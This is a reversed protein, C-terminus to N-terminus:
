VIENLKNKYYEARENFHAKVKPANKEMLAYDDETISKGFSEQEDPTMKSLIEAAEFIDINCLEKFTYNAM